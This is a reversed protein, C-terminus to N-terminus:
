HAVEEAPRAEAGREGSTCGRGSTSDGNGDFVVRRKGKKERERRLVCLREREREKGKGGERVRERWYTSSRIGVHFEPVASFHKWCLPFDCNSPNKKRILFFCFCLHM